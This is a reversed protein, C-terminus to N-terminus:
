LAGGGTGFVVPPGACTANPPGDCYELLDEREDMDNASLEYPQMANQWQELRDGNKGKNPLTCQHM